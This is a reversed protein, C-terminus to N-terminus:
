SIRRPPRALCQEYLTLYSRASRNWSFDRAMANRQLKQWRLTDHYAALARHTTRIFETTSYEDFGFGTGHEPDADADVVTDRLGGTAHVIPLTGYRMSMMQNLGCPEYQSPMLFIDAGAEILHALDEDYGIRVAARDPYIRGIERLVHENYPDGTGLLVFQAPLGLVQTLAPILIDFGKQNVIRSVVGFLPVGPSYPLAMAECLAKKNGEKANLTSPSYNRAIRPDTMPNWLDTDIGNLIGELDGRTKLTGELGFGFEYKSQIELAYTPSVTNIGDAFEIGAKLFNVHGYYELPGGPYFWQEVGDIRSLTEPSYLGQYAMNHVTMVSRSLAFEGNERAQYLYMAVLGTQWDHCHFIDPCWDLARCLEIASKSLAIFRYDNDVYNQNSFPDVYVGPRGYLSDCELFYVPLGLEVNSKMFAAQITRGRLTLGLRDTEKQLPHRQTDIV